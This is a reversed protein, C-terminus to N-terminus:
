AWDRALVSYLVHDVYQGRVVVDDRLVGELTFGVREALARSRVNTIAIRVQVRNLHYTDFSYTLIAELARTMYGHGTHRYDLWYGLETKRNNWDINHYGISGILADDLWLGAQFGDNLAFQQLGERIYARCDAHSNIDEVWPLFEALHAYNDQTLQFLEDAHRLEFLRLELSSDILYSFVNM